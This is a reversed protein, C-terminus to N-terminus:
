SNKSTIIVSDRFSLSENSTITSHTLMEDTYVHYTNDPKKIVRTNPDLIKNVEYIINNVLMLLNSSEIPVMRIVSKCKNTMDQVISTISKIVDPEELEDVYLSEMVNNLTMASGTASMALSSIDIEIDLILQLLKESYNKITSELSSLDPKDNNAGNRLSFSTTDDNTQEIRRMSEKCSISKTLAIFEDFKHQESQKMYMIITAVDSYMLKYVDRSVIVKHMKYYETLKFLNDPKLDFIYQTTLDVLDTTYSKFFKVLTILYNHVTSNSDNVSYLSKLGSVVQELSYIVHDIDSYLSNEEVNDVIAFLTPNMVKLYEAYTTAVKGTAGIMFMDKAEKTIFLAEHLDRWASYEPYTEAESMKRGVYYGLGKINQYMENFIKVKEGETTNPLTIWEFYKMFKETESPTLYRSPEKIIDNFVDLNTVKEFNFAVTDCPIYGDADINFYGICNLTSSVKSLIEGSLNYRKCILACLFVVCDFVTVKLAGTLKPFTVYINSLEDKKDFIMRLLMINEYLLESMKYSITIGLYKTETYNYHKHYIEPETIETFKTPDGYVESWTEDDDWWLPDSSTISSYNVRKSKDSLAANYNIENLEVKQFYVDYMEELDNVVVEKEVLENNDNIVLDVKTTDAYILNGDSDYKREKVLYYKYISIDHYGLLYAIDYLVKNEGKDQILKNLNKVLRRQTHYNLTACYPINYSDYLMQVMREDYFERNIAMEGTRAVLQSITMSCIALAIFNDYMDYVGRYYYNYVTNVFYDRCGNYLIIFQSHLIERDCVPLYLLEFNKAKRAKEVPINKIGIYKLYTYEPHLKLQEDVYGLSEIISCYQSTGYYQTLKHIPIKRSVGYIEEMEMTPYVFNGCLLYSGTSIDRTNMKAESLKIMTHTNYEPDTDDVVLFSNQITTTTKQIVSIDIYLYGAVYISFGLGLSTVITLADEFHIQSTSDDYETSDDIIEFSRSKSTGVKQFSVDGIYIYDGTYIRDSNMIKKATSLRIKKEDIDLESDNDVVLFSNSVIKTVDYAGITDIPPLGALERYYDNPENYEDIINRRRNELLTKKTEEPVRVPNAIYENYIVPDLIGAVVYEDATYTYSYFTDYKMLADYYGDFYKRNEFTEKEDAIGSFKVVMGDVMTYIQSYLKEIPNMEAPTTAM